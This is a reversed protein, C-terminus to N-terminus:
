RGHAAPLAEPRQGTRRARHRRDPGGRRCARGLNDRALEDQQEAAVGDVRNGYLANFATVGLQEGIAVAVDLNDRFQASRDPISLM